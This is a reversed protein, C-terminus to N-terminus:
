EVPENRGSGAQYKLYSMILPLAVTAYPALSGWSTGGLGSLSSEGATEAGLSSLAYKGGAKLGAKIGANALAESLNNGSDPSETQMTDTTGKARNQLYLILQRLQEANM